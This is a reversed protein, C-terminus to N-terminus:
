SPDEEYGVKTYAAVREDHHVDARLRAVLARLADMDLDLIIEGGVAKAAVGKYALTSALDKARQIPTVSSPLAIESDDYALAEHERLMRHQEATVLVYLPEEPDEVDISAFRRLDGVIRLAEHFVAVWENHTRPKYTTTEGDEVVHIYRSDPDSLLVDRTSEVLSHLNSASQPSHLVLEGSEGRLHAEVQKSGVGAFLEHVERQGPTSAAKASKKSGAKGGM